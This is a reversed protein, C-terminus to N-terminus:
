FLWRFLAFLGASLTIAAPLGSAPFPTKDVVLDQEVKAIARREWL